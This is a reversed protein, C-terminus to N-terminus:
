RAATIDRIEDIRDRYAEAVCAENPCRERYALFRDRSTRLASRTRSDAGSLSAYFQSSMARDLAALRDSGCVM